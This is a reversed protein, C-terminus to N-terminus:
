TLCCSVGKALNPPIYNYTQTGCTSFWSLPLLVYAQHAYIYQYRACSLPQGPPSLCDHTCGKFQVCTDNYSGVKPSVISMSQQPLLTTRTGWKSYRSYDIYETSNPNLMDNINHCVPIICSGLVEDPTLKSSLCFNSVNATVALHEWVNYCFQDTLDNSPDLPLSMAPQRLCIACFAIMKLFTNLGRSGFAGSCGM